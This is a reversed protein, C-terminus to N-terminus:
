PKQSWELRDGGWKRERVSAGPFIAVMRDERRLASPPAFGEGRIDIFPPDGCGRDPNVGLPELLRFFSVVEYDDHSYPIQHTFVNRRENTSFGIRKPAKTLYAVVASLRHWQETDIVVDYTNGLCKLLGFDKDYLYVNRLEKLLRFIDANRTECLVDIAAEPFQKRLLTIYAL